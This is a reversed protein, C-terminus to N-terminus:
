RIPERRYTTKALQYAGYSIFGFAALGLLVAGLPTTELASLADGVDGARSARRELAADVVFLGCIAMVVGRIVTGFRAATDLLTRTTRSLARRDFIKEFPEAKARYLLFGGGGILALGSAGLLLAGGPLGLIGSAWTEVLERGNLSPAAAIRVAALALSVYLAGTLADASRILIATPSNGRDEPDRFAGAINLAAYGLLGISLAVLIVKGLPQQEILLMAQQAGGPREALGLTVAGAVLGIAIYIFGCAAYGARAAWALLSDRSGPRLLRLSFKRRNWLHRKM